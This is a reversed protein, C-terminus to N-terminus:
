ISAMHHVHFDLDTGVGKPSLKAGLQAWRRCLMPFMAAFLADDIAFFPFYWHFRADQPNQMPGSHGGNQCWISRLKPGLQQWRPALNTWTPGFNPGQQGFNVGLRASTAAMDPRFPANPCDQASRCFACLVATGHVRQRCTGPSCAGGWSFSCWVSLDTWEYLTLTTVQAATTKKHRLRHAAPFDM